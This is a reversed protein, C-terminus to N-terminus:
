EMNSTAIHEYPQCDKFELARINCLHSQCTRIEQSIVEMAHPPMFKFAARSSKRRQPHLSLFM